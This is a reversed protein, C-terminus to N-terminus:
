SRSTMEIGEDESDGAGHSKGFLASKLWSTGSKWKNVATQKLRSAMTGADKAAKGLTGSTTNWFGRAAGAVGAGFGSLAGKVGNDKWTHGDAAAKDLAEGWSDGEKSYDVSPLGAQADNFGNAQPRARLGREEIEQARSTGGGEGTYKKVADVNDQNKAKAEIGTAAGLAWGVGGLLAGGAKAGADVVFSGAGGLGHADALKGAGHVGVERLAGAGSKALATANNGKLLDEEGTSGGLTDGAAQIGRHFLALKQATAGGVEEKPLKDSGRLSVEGDAGRKATAGLVNASEEITSEYGARHGTQEVAKGLALARTLQHTRAQLRGSSKTGTELNKKARYMAMHEQALKEKAEPSDASTLAAQTEKLTPASEGSALKKRSDSVMDAHQVQAKSAKYKAREVEAVDTPKAGSAEMTMRGLATAAVSAHVGLTSLSPGGYGMSSAAENIATGSAGMPGATVVQHGVQGLKALAMGGSRGFTEFTSPAERSTGTDPRSGKVSLAPDSIPRTATAPQSASKPAQAKAEEASASAKASHTPPM